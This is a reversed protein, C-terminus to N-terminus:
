NGMGTIKPSSPPVLLNSKQNQEDLTLKLIISYVALDLITDTISEDAVKGPKDILNKIRSWKDSIRVMVAKPVSIGFGESERFNRFADDAGAYDSNKRSTLEYMGDVIKKFQELYEKQTM